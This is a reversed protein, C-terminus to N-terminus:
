KAIVQIKFINPKCLTVLLGGDQNKFRGLYRETCNGERRKTPLVQM